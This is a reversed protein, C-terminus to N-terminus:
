GLAALAEPTDVDRLIGADDTPVEIWRAGTAVLASKTNAGSDEALLRQRISGCLAVPHGRKGAHVPVAIRGSEFRELVAGVTASGFSPIDVPTFLVVDPDGPLSALGCQLSSFMGRSPDPNIIRRAPSGLRAAISEHDHGLVVVVENCWPSLLSYLHDAYPVGKWLLLAKPFGVRSSAGGALIIAATM